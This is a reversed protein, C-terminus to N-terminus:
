ILWSFSMLQKDNLRLIKREYKHRRKTWFIGYKPKNWHNIKMPCYWLTRRIIIIIGTTLSEYCIICFHFVFYQIYCIKSSTLDFKFDAYLSNSFIGFDCTLNISSSFWIKNNIKPMHNMENILLWEYVHFHIYNLAILVEILEKLNESPLMMENVMTMHLVRKM